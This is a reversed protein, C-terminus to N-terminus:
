FYFYPFTQKVTHQLVPLQVDRVRLPSAPGGDGVEVEDGEDKEAGKDHEVDDDGDDRVPLPDPRVLM